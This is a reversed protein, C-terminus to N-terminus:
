NEGDSCPFVNLSDRRKQQITVSNESTNNILKIKINSAKDGGSEILKFTDELKHILFISM